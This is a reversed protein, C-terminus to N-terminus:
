HHKENPYTNIQKNKETEEMVTRRDINGLSKYNLRRKVRDEKFKRFENRTRTNTIARCRKSIISRQSNKVDANTQTVTFRRLDGPSKETNQGINIISYDQHNGSVRQNGVRGTGIDIRQPNNWFCWYCNVDGDNEHEM